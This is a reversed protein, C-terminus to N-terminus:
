SSETSEEESVSCRSAGHYGGRWGSPDYMPRNWGERRVGPRALAAELMEAHERVRTSGVRKRTERITM